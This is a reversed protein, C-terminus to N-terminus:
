APQELARRAALVERHGPGLYRELKAMCRTMEVQGEPRGLDRLARGRAFRTIVTQINEPGLAERKIALARDFTDVAESFRQQRAQAEAQAHLSVAVQPHADGMARRRIAAAERFHDEAAADDGLSSLTEGMVQLTSAVEPHDPGLHSRRIHLAMKFADLAELYRELGVRALGIAHLAGAMDLHDAGLAVGLIARCRNLLDLGEEHRGLRVCALGVANLSGATLLHEPGLATETIALDRRFAELGEQARGLRTLAGGIAHHTVATAPHNPGLTGEKIFLVQKYVAVADRPRDLGLLADGLSQLTVAVDAHVPGLHATQLALAARFSEVAELDRGLRHQCLGIAHLDAALDPHSPALHEQHVALVQRHLAEAEQVAGERFAARGQTFLARAWVLPDLGTRAAARAAWGRGVQPDGLRVAAEAAAQLAAGEGARLCAEVLYGRVPLPARRLAEGAVVSRSTAAWTALVSEDGAGRGEALELLRAEGARLIAERVVDTDGLVRWAVTGGGGAALHDLSLIGAGLALPVLREGPDGEDALVRLLEEEGLGAELLGAALRVADPELDCLAALVGPRRAGSRALLGLAATPDMCRGDVPWWGPCPGVPDVAVTPATRGVEAVAWRLRRVLFPETLGTVAVPQDAAERLHRVLDAYPERAQIPVLRADPAIRALLDALPGERWVIGPAVRARQLGRVAFDPLWPGGGSRAALRWFAPATQELVASSDAHMWVVLRIGCSAVVQTDLCPGDLPVPWCVVMTGPLLAAPDGCGVTVVLDPHSPLLARVLPGLSSADVGEVHRTEGPGM